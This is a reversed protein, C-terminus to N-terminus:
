ATGTAGTSTGFWRCRSSDLWPARSSCAIGSSRTTAAAAPREPASGSTSGASLPCRRGAFRWTPGAGIEWVPVGRRFRAIFGADFQLPATKMGGFGLHTQFVAQAETELGAPLVLGCAVAVAPDAFGAPARGGLRAGPARRRRRLRRHGRGRGRRRHEPRPQPEAATRSPLARRPLGAGGSRDGSGARQRRRHDRSGRRGRGAISGLCEALAQPRHRTCIVISAALPAPAARHAALVADLREFVRRAARGPRPDAAASPPSAVGRSGPSLRSRPAALRRDGARRGRRRCARGRGRDDAARQRARAPDWSSAAIASWPGSLRGTRVPRSRRARPTWTSKSSPGPHGPIM